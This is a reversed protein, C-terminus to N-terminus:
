SVEEILEITVDVSSIYAPMAPAPSGSSVPIGGDSVASGTLTFKIRNENTIKLNDLTLKLSTGTVVTSHSLDDNTIVGSTGVVGNVM